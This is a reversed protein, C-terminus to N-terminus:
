EFVGCAIRDGSDGSPDTQYDDPGAHVIIATGDDDLLYGDEGENLSIVPIIHQTQATGDESVHINPLDGAHPGAESEFGHKMEAPNFHGGASEFPPECAGTTHFHFGHEGPPLGQLDTTVLVGNPTQQLTVTGHDEGKLGKMGASASAMSKPQAPGSSGSQASATTTLLAAAFAVTLRLM